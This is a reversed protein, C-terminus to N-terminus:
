IAISQFHSPKVKIQKYFKLEKLHQSLTSRGINLEEAIDGSYCCADMKSLKDLIFIRVPHSIAKAFKALQLHKDSYKAKSVMSQM